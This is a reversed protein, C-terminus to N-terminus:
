GCLAGAAAARGVAAGLSTDAASPVQRRRGGSLRGSLHTLRLPCRDGGGGPLPGRSPAPQMNCRPRRLEAAGIAPRRSRESAVPSITAPGAGAGGDRSHHEPHGRGGAGSPFTPGGAALPAGASGKWSGPPMGAGTPVSLEMRVAPACPVIHLDPVRSVKQDSFSLDSIRGCHLECNSQPFSVPATVARVSAKAALVVGAPLRCM